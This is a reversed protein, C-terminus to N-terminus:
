FKMIKITEIRIKKKIIKKMRIKMKKKQKRFIMM